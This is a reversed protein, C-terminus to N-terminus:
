LYQGPTKDEGSVTPNGPTPPMMGSFMGMHGGLASGGMQSLLEPPIEIEGSEVKEQFEMYKKLQRKSLYWSVGFHLAEFIAVSSVMAAVVPWYIDWFGLSDM